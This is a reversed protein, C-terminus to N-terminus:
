MRKSIHTTAKEAPHTPMGLAWGTTLPLGKVMLQVLVGTLEKQM